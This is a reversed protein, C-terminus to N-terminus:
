VVLCFLKHEFPWTDLATHNKEVGTKLLRVGNLEWPLGQPAETSGWTGSALDSLWMPRACM